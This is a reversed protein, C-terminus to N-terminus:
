LTTGFRDYEDRKEKDKLIEYAENIKIAINHSDANLNKDPHYKQMSKRYASHIEEDTANYNVGLIKYYGKPDRNDQSDYNIKEQYENEFKENDYNENQRQENYYREEFKNYLRERENYEDRLNKYEEYAEEEYEYAMEQSRKKSLFEKQMQFEFKNIKIRYIFIFIAIALFLVSWFILNITPQKITWPLRFDVKEVYCYQKVEINKFIEKLVDERAIFWVNLIFFSSLSSAILTIIWYVIKSYNWFLNLFSFYIGIAIAGIFIATMIKPISNFNNLLNSKYVLISTTLFIAVMDLKDLFRLILLGFLALLIIGGM